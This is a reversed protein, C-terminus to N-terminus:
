RPPELIQYRGAGAFRHGSRKQSCNCVEPVKHTGPALGTGSRLQAGTQDGVSGELSGEMIISADIMM